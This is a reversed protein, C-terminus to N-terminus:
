YNISKRHIQLAEQFIKGFLDELHKQKKSERLLFLQIESVTIEHSPSSSAQRNFLYSGSIIM